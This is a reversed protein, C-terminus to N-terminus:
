CRCKLVLRVLRVSKVVFMAPYVAKETPNNGDYRTLPPGKVLFVMGLVAVRDVGVRQSYTTQKGQRDRRRAACTSLWCNANGSHHAGVCFEPSIVLPASTTPHM